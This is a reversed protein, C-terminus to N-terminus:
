PIIFFVPVNVGTTATLTGCSSPMALTAGDGTASNSGTAFRTAGNANLLYSLSTNGNDSTVKVATSDSAVGLYYIGPTLTAPTSAVQVVTSTSKIQTTNTAFDSGSVKNCSSDYIAAAHGCDASGACAGATAATSVFWVLATAPGTDRQVFQFYRPVKSSYAPGNTSPDAGPIVPIFGKGTTFTVGGGGAGFTIDAGNSQGHLKNSDGSDCWISGNAPASPATTCEVALGAATASPHFTANIYYNAAQAFAQTQPLFRLGLALALLSTALLTLKKM